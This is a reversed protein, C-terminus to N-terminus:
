RREGCGAMPRGHHPNLVTEDVGLAQFAKAVEPWDSADIDLDDPDPRWMQGTQAFIDALAWAPRLCRLQGSATDADVEYAGAENMSQFWQQSRPHLEVGHLKAYSPRTQVAVHLSRPIQTTWGALHLASAGCVTASPYILAVAQSTSAQARHPDVLRNFYVGARPGAKELLGKSTWRSLTNLASDRDLGSARAFTNLTFMAPLARLRDLASVYRSVTEGM